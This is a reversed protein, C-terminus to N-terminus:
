RFTEDAQWGSALVLWGGEEIRRERGHDWRTNAKQVYSHIDLVRVM